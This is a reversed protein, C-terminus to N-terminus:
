VIPRVPTAKWFYRRFGRKSDFEKIRYVMRLPLGVALEGEATDAFEMMVRGGGEFDVHGFQFPPHPTYALFDSTHSMVRAPADVLSIPDMSDQARCGPKVCLRGAPFQVTACVRCRGGEFHAIREHDRWAATLATKTDMEARMGWEPSLAGTFSLFKLYSPEPAGQDPEVGACAQSTRKLLIADCGSGFSVVLILAGAQAGRVAMDLMAIPQACGIDGVSDAATAVIAGQAIGVKRAVAENVKALPAPMAFHAIDSSQVGAKALCARIADVAITMYGQERVWREEWAYDHAQGTERFHDIFDAQVSVACEFTAVPRGVGILAAAAGHGVVLEQASAPKTSRLESAVVLRCAPERREFADRLEITGARMSSAVDRATTDSPLGLAGAVIGANLRDAFPLTTSALTVHAPRAASPSGIVLRAAEVAMTVADEDWNAMARRGKALSRLGPAMWRNQAYVESRELRLRPVYRSTALLGFEQDPSNM